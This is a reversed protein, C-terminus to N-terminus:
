CTLTRLLRLLLVRCMYVCTPASNEREAQQMKNLSAPKQGKTRCVGLQGEQSKLRSILLWLLHRKTDKFHRPAPAWYHHCLPGRPWPCISFYVMNPQTNPVTIFPMFGPHWDVHSLLNFHSFLIFFRIERPAGLIFIIIKSLTSTPFPYASLRPGPSSGATVSIKRHMYRCIWRFASAFTAACFCGGLSETYSHKHKLM